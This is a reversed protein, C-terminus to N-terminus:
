ARAGPRAAHEREKLSRREIKGVPTRPIRDTFEVRRIKKYPAVRESVFAMLEESTTPETVVVFAKPIESAEEDAVGIVAVDAVKPHTMLVAELEVPSVQQGKYKILEKIRDVIFLEGHEDVYGLDGSHLFGDPELVARTAEDANLYGKMVHPGRILIEGSEGRGLEAGTAVDVIKCEINPSNRGVSGRSASDALQMFSVLGETLGYGQGIRCGLRREVLDAIEPDLAAGGSVISRVSGLDYADVLPSKALLVAITPVIYLRTIRHEQIARLYGEPDFRPMTVITAGQLLSANLVMMVGFAHHFPPMALVRADPELPAVVSTQLVNAIMNRHTLVVGKPYGTSGSSHLITAVDTTSDVAVPPQPRAAELVSAFPTAGPASGLVLIRALGTRGAVERAKDMESPLALLFRAGAENVHTILDAATDLPNLLMAAGGAAIAAHYAIPFEPVNPVLMALVDGPRFGLARLGAAGQHVAATLEEYTYSNRGSVDMVAIEGAHRGAHQLVYSTFSTEPVPTAPHPGTFIV